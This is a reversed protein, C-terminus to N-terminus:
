LIERLLVEMFFEYWSCSQEPDGTSRLTEMVRCTESFCDLSIMMVNIELKSVPAEQLRLENTRRV